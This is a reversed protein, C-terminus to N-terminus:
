PVRGTLELVKGSRLATIGYPSGARLNGLKERMKVMDDIAALSIDAIMLIIDGGVTYEQGGLM